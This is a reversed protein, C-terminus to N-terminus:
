YQRKYNVLASPNNLEELNPMGITIGTHLQSTDSFNYIYDINLNNFRDKISLPNFIGILCSGKWVFDYTNEELINVQLIVESINLVEKKSPLMKGGVTQLASDSISLHQLYNKELFVDFGLQTYKKAIEPTIATRRELNLNEKVSGINM